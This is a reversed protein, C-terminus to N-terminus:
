RLTLARVTAAVEDTLAGRLADRCEPYESVLRQLQTTKGACAASLLAATSVTNRTHSAGVACRQPLAVIGRDHCDRCLPVDAHLWPRAATHALCWAVLEARDTM